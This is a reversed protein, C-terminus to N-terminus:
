RVGEVVELWLFCIMTVTKARSRMIKFKRVSMIIPIKNIAHEKVRIVNGLEYKTNNRNNNNVSQSISQNVSQNISLNITKNVNENLTFEIREAM